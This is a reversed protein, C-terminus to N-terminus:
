YTWAEKWGLLDTFPKVIPSTHAAMCARVEPTLISEVNPALAEDKTLHYLAVLQQTNPAYARRLAERLKIAPFYNLMWGQFVTFRDRANTEIKINHREEMRPFRQDHNTLITRLMHVDLETRKLLEARLAGGHAKVVPEWLEWPMANWVEGAGKINSAKLEEFTPARSMRRLIGFRKYKALMRLARVMTKDSVNAICVGLDAYPDPAQALLVESEAAPAIALVDARHAHERNKYRHFKEDFTRELYTLIIRNMELEAEPDGVCAVFLEALMAGDARGHTFREELFKVVAKPTYWLAHEPLFVSRPAQAFRLSLVQPPPLVLRSRPAHDWDGSELAQEIVRQHADLFYQRVEPHADFAAAFEVAQENPGYGAQAALGSQYTTHYGGPWVEPLYGLPVFIRARLVPAFRDTVLVKACYIPPTDGGVYYSRKEADAEAAALVEGAYREIQEENLM